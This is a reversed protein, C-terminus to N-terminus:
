PRATRPAAREKTHTQQKKSVPVFIRCDNTKQLHRCGLLAPLLSGIVADGLEKRPQLAPNIMM